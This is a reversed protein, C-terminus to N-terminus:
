ACPSTGSVMQGPKFSALLHAWIDDYRQMFADRSFPGDASSPHPGTMSIQYYLGNAVFEVSLQPAPTGAPTPTSVYAFNDTQYGTVPGVPVPTGVGCSGIARHSVLIGIQVDAYRQTVSTVPVPSDANRGFSLSYPDTSTGSVSPPGDFGLVSPIAIQFGDKLDNYTSWVPTPTAM